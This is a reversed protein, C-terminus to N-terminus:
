GQPGGCGEYLPDDKVPGPGQDYLQIGLCEAGDADTSRLLEWRGYEASRGSAVVIRATVPGGTHGVGSEQTQTVAGVATAIGFCALFSGIVM